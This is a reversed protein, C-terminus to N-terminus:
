ETRGLLIAAGVRRRVVPISRTPVRLRSAERTSAKKTKALPRHSGDPVFRMKSGRIVRIDRIIQAHRPCNSCSKASPNFIECAALLTWDPQVVADAKGNKEASCLRLRGNCCVSRLQRRIRSEKIWCLNSRDFRLRRLQSDRTRVTSERDADSLDSSGM